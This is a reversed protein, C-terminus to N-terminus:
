RVLVHTWKVFNGIAISIQQINLDFHLSMQVFIRANWESIFETCWQVLFSGPGSPALGGIPATRVM